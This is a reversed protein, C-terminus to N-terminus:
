RASDIGSFIVSEVGSAVEQPGLRGGPEYWDSISNITGFIMRTLLSADLDARISGDEQAARIFASVARTLERRRELARLEVDSNGRLRLLLAVSKPDACLVEISGRLLGRIKEAPAIEAAQMEEVVAELKGLAQVVTLELIEEKSSIHHYLASKSIGLESAVHGMSTADYGRATFAKVAVRIVDERSYGPRGRSVSNVASKQESVCVM